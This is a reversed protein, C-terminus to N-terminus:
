LGADHLLKELVIEARFYSEAIARAAHCHRRYDADVAEIAAAADEIGRFAFLGEGTPYLRSFGTDQVVVPKGMALYCASRCSFWGSATAVYAEKAVSWEARSAAIYDRYREMTTSREAADVVHWGHAAMEERPAPGSVAIELPPRVRGPLAAFRRFEVDKAGYVRGGLVPLAPKTKWSMVTTFSRAAPDFRAPWDELTIPQRTTKWEVGCRPVRCSADNMNEGMTFYADYSRYAGPRSQQSRDGTEAALWAAQTYLPDSDYCALVRAGRYGDRLWASDSVNLFLEASRCRAAIEQESLGHLTGRPDRYAFSDAMGPVRSLVDRLHRLNDAAEETFTGLRPNYAWQGTDELYTVRCGLAVFGKVFQLYDWAVGGLPYAGILGTVVVQM